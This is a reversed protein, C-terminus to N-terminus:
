CNNEGFWGAFSTSYNKKNVVHWYRKTKCLMDKYWSTFIITLFKSFNCRTPCLWYLHYYAATSLNDQKEIKIRWLTMRTFQVNRKLDTSRYWQDTSPSRPFTNLSASKCSHTKNKDWQRHPARGQLASEYVFGESSWREDTPCLARHSALHLALDRRYRWWKYTTCWIQM